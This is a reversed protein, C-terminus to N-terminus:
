VPLEITFIAGSDSNQATLNGNMHTEVIIKSMYLGMGTGKDPGKTTFYPDFIKDIIDPSIGGGNDSVAISITNAQKYIDINILPERINNSILVDKANNVLNLIVQEFENAICSLEVETDGKIELTIGYSALQASLLETSHRVREAVVISTPTKDAKFFGRFDDITKSMFKIINMSKKITNELTEQTLEGDRQIYKLDQIMIGLANLPQRWQHAIAGIMEGMAAMRSQQMLIREQELRAVTEQQIKNELETNLNKLGEEAARRETIDVMSWLVGKEDGPLEIKSGYLSCWMIHGDKHRLRYEANSITMGDKVTQFRPAWSSYEEDSIHLLRVNKGIIEQETYGFMEYFQKNAMLMVRNSSVLLFGAANNEFFANQVELTKKITERDHKITNAMKNFAALTKRLEPAGSEKISIDSNLNSLKIAGEEIAKLSPLLRRRMVQRIIVMNLFIIAVFLLLGKIARYWINNAGRVISTQITIEGYSQGNKILPVKNSTGELFLLTAFFDPYNKHSTTNKFEINTGNRNTYVIFDIDPHKSYEDLIQLASDINKAYLEDLVALSMAKIEMSTTQKLHTNIEDVEDYVVFLFMSSVVLTLTTTSILLMRTLLSMSNIKKAVIHKMNPRTM